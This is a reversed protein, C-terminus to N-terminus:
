RKLSKSKWCSLPAPALPLYLPHCIDLRLCVDACVSRCLPLRVSLCVSLPNRHHLQVTLASCPHLLHPSPTWPRVPCTLSCSYFWSFAANLHSPVPSKREKKGERERGGGGGGKEKGRVWIAEVYNAPLMGQQGTREVRGYMWGEDIQQVDVIVDGDQFSVEDEDAASYDYM